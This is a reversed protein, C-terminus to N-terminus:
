MYAVENRYKELVGGVGPLNSTWQMPMGNRWRYYDEIIDAQQEFNFSSLGKGQSYKLLPELGGYNYGGGWHQAWIAESIYVSGGQLYQHIHVIEHVLICLPLDTDFNVSHFSTYALTKKKRAPWSANDLSILGVPFRNGFVSRIVEIENANLARTHKKFADLITEYLLATPTLDAVLLLLGALWRLFVNKGRPSHIWFLWLLLRWWRLPWSLIFELFRRGFMLIRWGM